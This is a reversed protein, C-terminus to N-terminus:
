NRLNSQSKTYEGPQRILWWAGLWVLYLMSLSLLALVYSLLKWQFFRGVGSWGAAWQLVNQLAPTLSIRALPASFPATPWENVGPFLSTFAAFLGFAQLAALGALLLLPVLLWGVGPQSRPAADQARPLLLNVESM